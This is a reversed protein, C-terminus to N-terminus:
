KDREAAAQHVQEYQFLWGLWDRHVNHEQGCIKM